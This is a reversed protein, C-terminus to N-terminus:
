ALDIPHDHGIGIVVLETHQAGALANGHDILMREGIQQRDFTRRQQAGESTLVVAVEGQRPDGLNPREHLRRAGPPVAEGQGGHGRRVPVPRPCLRVVLGPVLEDIELLGNDALDDAVQRDASREIDRAAGSTVGAVEGLQTVTHDADVARLRHEVSSSGCQGVGTKGPCVQMLQRDVILRDVENHTRQREAM